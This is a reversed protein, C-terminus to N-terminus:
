YATPPQLWQLVLTIFRAILLVLCGFLTPLITLKIGGAIDQLQVATTYEIADLTGILQLLQSFIGAVLAFLGLSNILSIDKRLGPKKRLAKYVGLGALVLIALGCILILSMFFMGGEQMREAVTHFFGTQTEQQIEQTAM